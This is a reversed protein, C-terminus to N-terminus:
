PHVVVLLWGKRMRFPPHVVLRLGQHVAKQPSSAEETLLVQCLRQVRVVVTVVAVLEMPQPFPHPQVVGSAPQRAVGGHGTPLLRLLIVMSPCWKPADLAVNTGFRQTVPWATAVSTVLHPPPVVPARLHVVMRARWLHSTSSTADVVVTLLGTLAVVLRPLLWCPEQQVEEVVPTSPVPDLWHVVVPPGLRALRGPLTLVHVLWHRLLEAVVLVRPRALVHTVQKDM